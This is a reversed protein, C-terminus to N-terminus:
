NFESMAKDIGLICFNIMSDVAIKIFNDLLSAEKESWGSLVYRSQEGINFNGGIGFKMRPYHSSNLKEIIDNHGNHGGASGKRKIKIKGFPLHLDDSIILLNEKNIKHKLLHYRVAMGSLNMFTNPKLFFVQRGKINLKALEGYKSM